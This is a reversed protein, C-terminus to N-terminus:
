IHLPICQMEKSDIVTMAAKLHPESGLVEIKNRGSLYRQPRFNM